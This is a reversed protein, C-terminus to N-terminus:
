ARAAPLRYALNEKSLLEIANDIQKHTLDTLAELETEIVERRAEGGALEYLARLVIERKRYGFDSTVAHHLEPEPNGTTTNGTSWEGLRILGYSKLANLDSMTALVPTADALDDPFDIQGPKYNWYFMPEPDNALRQHILRAVRQQRITLPYKTM